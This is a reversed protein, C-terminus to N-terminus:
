GLVRRLFALIAPLTRAGSRGTVLATGHETGPVTVLQKAQSPAATLFQRAAEASGYPDQDATVLLLPCRLRRVSDVVVIGPRLIAEASLSVVGRVMPRIRAATVLSTKAGESAGLLVVRAAGTSRLRKVLGALEAPPPNAGYDWLVIRYGAAALRASLPLWSCLDEDSENSLIIVRPGTGAIGLELTGGGADPVTETTGRAATFCRDLVPSASAAPSTAGAAPTRPGVADQRATHQGAAHQGATQQGSTCGTALMLGALGAVLMTM